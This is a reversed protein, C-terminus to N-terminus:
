QLIGNISPILHEETNNIDIKNLLLQMFSNCLHPYDVLITCIRYLFITDNNLGMICEYILEWNEILIFHPNLESLDQSKVIPYNTLIGRTTQSYPVESVRGYVDIIYKEYKNIFKKDIDRIRKM